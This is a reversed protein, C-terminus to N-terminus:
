LHLLACRKCKATRAASGAVSAVPQWKCRCVCATSSGQRQFAGAGQQRINIHQEVAQASALMCTGAFRMMVFTPPGSHSPLMPVAQPTTAALKQRIFPTVENRTLCLLQKNTAHEPECSSNCCCARTSANQLAVLTTHLAALAIHLAVRAYQACALWGKGSLCCAAVHQVLCLPLVCQTMSQLELSHGYSM